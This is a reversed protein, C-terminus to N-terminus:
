IDFWMGIIFPILIAVPIVFSNIVSALMGTDKDHKIMVKRINKQIIPVALFFFIVLKPFTGMLISVIVSAYVSYYFFRYVTLAKEVGIYYPLTFRNDEIDEELDGINNALMIAMVTIATPVSAIVLQVLTVFDFQIVEYANVYVTSFFIGFGMSLGVFFEGFPTSAIPRPGATYLIGISFNVIAVYLLILSTQTVLYIGIITSIIGFTLYVNSIDKLRIKEEGLIINDASHEGKKIAIEYELYNDRINVAMHFLVIVLVALISLVPNFTRYNYWAYAIGIFAPFFSTTTSAMQSLKLINKITM